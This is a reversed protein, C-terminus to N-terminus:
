INLLTRDIQNYVEMIKDFHSDCHDISTNHFISCAAIMIDTSPITYGSSRCEKALTNAIGWVESTTFICPITEELEKLKKKEYDGQARNWLELLVMHCFVVKGEMLLEYVRNRIEKKGNKRLAEIWSSIDVLTIVM